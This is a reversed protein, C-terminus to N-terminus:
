ELLGEKAGLVAEPEALEAAVDFGPSSRSARIKAFTESSMGSQDYAVKVGFKKEFPEITTKQFVDQYEGGYAHVVLTEAALLVISPMQLAGVAASGSLAQLVRRRTVLSSM